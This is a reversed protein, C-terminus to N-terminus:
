LAFSVIRTHIFFIINIHVCM